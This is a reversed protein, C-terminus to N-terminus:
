TRWRSAHPAGPSSQATWCTKSQTGLIDATPSSSQRSGIHRLLLAKGYPAESFGTGPFAVTSKETDCVSNSGGLGHDATSDGFTDLRLYGDILTPVAPRGYARTVAGAVAVDGNNNAPFASNKLVFGTSVIQLLGNVLVWAQDFGVRTTSQPIVAAQFETQTVFSGICGVWGVGDKYEATCGIVNSPKAYLAYANYMSSIMLIDQVTGVVNLIKNDYTFKASTVRNTGTVSQAALLTAAKVTITEVDTEFPKVAM